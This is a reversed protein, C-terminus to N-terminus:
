ARIDLIQKVKSFSLCQNIKKGGKLISVNKRHTNKKTKIIIIIVSLIINKSLFKIIDRTDNNNYKNITRCLSIFINKSPEVLLKYDKYIAHHLVIHFCSKNSQMYIRFYLKKCAPPLPTHHASRKFNKFKTM